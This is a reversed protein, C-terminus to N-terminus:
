NANCSLGAWGDTRCTQVSAGAEFRILLPGIQASPAFEVPSRDTPQLVQVVGSWSGSAGLDDWAGSQWRMRQFGQGDVQLGLIQQSMVAEDRLQAFVAQFRKADSLDAVGPRNVSLTLTTTLMALIAVVVMLEILTFGAAPDNGVPRVM